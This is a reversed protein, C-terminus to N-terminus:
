EMFKQNHTKKKQKFKTVTVTSKKTKKTPATDTVHLRSHRFSPQPIVPSIENKQQEGKMSMRLQQSHIYIALFEFRHRFLIRVELIGFLVQLSRQIKSSM